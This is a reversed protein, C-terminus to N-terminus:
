KRRVEIARGRWHWHDEIETMPAILRGRSPDWIEFLDARQRMYAIAHADPESGSDVLLIAPPHVKALDHDPEYVKKANLGLARLGYVIQAPSTGAWTTHLLKVMDAETKHIGFYGAVNAASAAACTSANTQFIIGGDVRSGVKGLFPQVSIRTMAEVIVLVIVSFVVIRRSWAHHQRVGVTSIAVLAFTVFFLKIIWVAQLLHYGVFVPLAWGIRPFQFLTSAVVQLFVFLLLAIPLLPCENVSIKASINFGDRHLRRGYGIGAGTALVATLFTQWYPIENM